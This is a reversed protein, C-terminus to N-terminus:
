IAWGPNSDRGLTDEGWHPKLPPLYCPSYQIFLTFLFNVLQLASALVLVHTLPASWSNVRARYFFVLRYWHEQDNYVMPVDSHGADHNWTMIFWPFFLTVGDYNWTMAAWPFMLTVRTMTVKSMVFWPFLLTVWTMAGPWQLGHSGCLSWRWPELDNYVMPVVSHGANHSWTMKVMPVVSHGADHNTTIINSHFVRTVRTKTGKSM